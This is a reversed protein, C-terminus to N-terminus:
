ETDGATGASLRDWIGQTPRPAAFTMRRGTAPHTFALQVAYLAISRDREGRRAGYKVDGKIPHGAEGLQARIQHFAGGEPRVELLTYRDGHVLPVIQLRVVTGPGNGLHEQVKARRSGGEHLHHHQLTRTSRVQGEVVAWYVKEVTRQSFQESLGAATRGDRALVVVGGVPRDLRHVVLPAPGGISRAVLEPLAPDGSLDVQVPVGPPKVVVVLWADSHLIFLEQV